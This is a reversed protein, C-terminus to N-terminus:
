LNYDGPVGFLHRVGAERLRRLLFDGITMRRAPHSSMAEELALPTGRSTLRIGEPFSRLCSLTRASNGAAICGSSAPTCSSDPPATNCDRMTRAIETRAAACDGAAVTLPVTTSAVPAGTDSVM